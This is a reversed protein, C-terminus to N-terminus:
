HEAAISTVKAGLNNLSDLVSQAESASLGNATANQLLAILDQIDAHIETLGTDIATLKDNIDTFKSMFHAELLIVLESFTLKM